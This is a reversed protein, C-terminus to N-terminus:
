CTILNAKGRLLPKEEIREGLTAVVILGVFVVQNVTIHLGFDVLSHSAVAFIGTLAGICSARRFPDRSALRRRALQFFAIGFWAVFAAGILGGSVMLELYDNHAAEPTWEGTADHEKTIATSFGGFGIGLIPHSKIERLTAQWIEVRRVGSHDEVTSRVESSLAAMREMLPEGGFWLIGGLISSLLFLCVLTGAFLFALTRWRSRPELDLHTRDRFALVVLLVSLFILQALMSFVGARSNSLIITAALVLAATLYAPAWDLKRRAALLLGLVLGLSMEILFAFHNKNIFQAYGSDHPKLSALVFNPAEGQMTQRAIGFVSSLIGIGIIAFVLCKFRRNTNTYRLLLSGAVILAILKRAVCGTEYPDASISKIAGAHIGFVTLDLSGFSVSQVWAFAALVLCPIFLRHEALFWSGNLAGEIIWFVAFLFVIAQFHADWLPQVGGYPAAIVMMLGLLGYFIASSIAGAVRLQLHVAVEAKAFNTIPGSEVITAM